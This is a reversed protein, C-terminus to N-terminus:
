FKRNKFPIICWRITLLLQKSYGMLRKLENIAKFLGNPTLTGSVSFGPKCLWFSFSDWLSVKLFSAPGNRFIEKKKLHKELM